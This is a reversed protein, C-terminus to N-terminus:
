SIATPGTGTAIWGNVDHSVMYTLWTAGDCSVFGNIGVEFRDPGGTPPGLLILMNGDRVPRCLHANPDLVQERSAV